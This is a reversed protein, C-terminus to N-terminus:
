NRIAQLTGLQLATTLTQELLGRCPGLGPLPPGVDRLVHAPMAPFGPCRDM